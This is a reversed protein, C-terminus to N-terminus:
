RTPPPTSHLSCPWSKRACRTPSFPRSRWDRRHIPPLIRKYAALATTVPGILGAVDPTAMAQLAAIAARAKDANSKFTAPGAKDETAMFRWNAVRVLLVAAEVTGAAEALRPDQGARATEVLHNAAATLTDGGTFLRARAALSRGILGAFQNVNADHKVLTDQVGDYTRRREESLTARASDTMLTGARAEHDRVAKLAEESGDLLYRTEARRIAELDRTSTLVRQTNGALADMTKVLDAIKAFESVAFLAIAITLAVLFGFGLYIRTRVKIHAISM